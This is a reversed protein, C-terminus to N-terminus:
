GEEVPVLRVPVADLYVDLGELCLEERVNPVGVDDLMKVFQVIIQSVPVYTRELELGSDVLDTIIEEVADLLVVHSVSLASPVGAPVVRAPRFLAAALEEPTAPRNSGFLVIQSM